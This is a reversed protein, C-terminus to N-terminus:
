QLNTGFLRDGIDGVGPVLYSHADLTEDVAGVLVDTGERWFEAVRELGPRSALLSLFTIHEAGWDRYYM